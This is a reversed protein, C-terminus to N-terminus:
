IGHFVDASVSRKVHKDTYKAPSVNWSNFHHM